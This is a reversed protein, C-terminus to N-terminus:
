CSHPLDDVLHVADAAAVALEAEFRVVLSLLVGNRVHGRLLVALLVTHV